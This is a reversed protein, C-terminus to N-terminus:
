LIKYLSMFCSWHVKCNSRIKIGYIIIIIYFIIPDKTKESQLGSGQQDRLPEASNIQRWFVSINLLKFWLKTQLITRFLPLLCSKLRQTNTRCSYLSVLIFMHTLFLNIERITVHNTTKPTWCFCSHYIFLIFIFYIDHQPWLKKM